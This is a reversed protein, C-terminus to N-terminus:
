ASSSARLYSIAVSAHLAAGIPLVEEDIELYPSHLSRHPGSSENKTGIFYMASPMKQAYFGFDEAAMIMSSLLMNPEGLLAEGVEKVHRYMSEDNVTTPYPKLSDEFFDITATCRYVTSQMEITEKIRKQLLNFGDSSFSRFTGGFKVTESIVNLAQGGQIFGVSIVQM